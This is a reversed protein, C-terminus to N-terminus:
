LVSDNGSWSPQRHNNLFGNFSPMAPFGQIQPFDMFGDPILQNPNNKLANLLSNKKNEPLDKAEKIQKRVEDYKGEFIFQKKEGGNEQFEVEARYKDDGTKKISVSEFQQMVNAQSSSKSPDIGQQPMMLQPFNPQSFNSWSNPHGWFNPQGGYGFSPFRGGAQPRPTSQKSGLKVKIEQKSGDRVVSLSVEEDAKRAAVLGALQQASYLQQNDFSLLIDYAQLGSEAAPSNATVSQVMVGQNKPIVNALQKSLVKPVPELLVGLWTKKLQNQTGSNTASKQVTNTKTDTEANAMANQIAVTLTALVLSTVLVKKM